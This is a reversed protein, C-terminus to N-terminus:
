QVLFDVIYVRTIYDKSDFEKNLDNEISEELSKFGKIGIVENKKLSNINKIITNEIRFNLKSIEEATKQSKTVIKFKAQMFNGDALNTTIPKTDLSIELLEEISVEDQNKTESPANLAFWVFFAGVGIFTISGIILLSKKLLNM